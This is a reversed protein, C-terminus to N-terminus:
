GGDPRQTVPIPAGALAPEPDRARVVDPLRLGLLAGAYGLLTGALVDTPFHAGFLVRTFGVACIYAWCLWRLRPFLLALAGALAATIAMHGSPYSHLHGWTSGELNVATAGLAEEPRPRDYFLYVAELLAWAVLGSAFMLGVVRPASRPRTALAACLGALLLLVYNRTHPNLADWIIEPGRGLGNIARFLEHDLDEIPTKTVVLGAVLVAGWAVVATAVWRELRRACLYLRRRRAPIPGRVRALPVLSALTALASLVFLARYSGSLDVSWGAVPLAITSAVARASFFLATYAGAEEDPVFSSYLPYGLTTVLGFGIGAILLAPGVAAISDGVGVAAFGAAMLLLGAFLLPRHLHPVRVRGAALVAAGTMLGFGALWLSAAAPEVDLVEEAYLIFFAPLAAYGVVWLVQATLFERIGPQIAVRALYGVPARREAAAVTGPERAVRLTPLGLLAVAAAAVAFPAWLAVEILAGGVALGALGGLLLALEQSSTTKAWASPAFAERVLTRHATTIANLGTYVVLACAALVLYSTTAGLSVAVLGGATVLTGGLIFAPAARRGSARRRDSWVGVVLPIAFGALANVLMVTGILGPADRIRDLLVPLYSTTVARALGAGASAAAFAVLWVVRPSAADAPADRALLTM